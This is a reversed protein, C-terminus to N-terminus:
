DLVLGRHSEVQSLHGIQPLARNKRANLWSEVLNHVNGDIGLQKVKFMLKNHPVKDFGKQFDLYVIDLSRTIDHAHSLDDYFTLLNSLCSRKNRFGHQSDRILSHNEFHRVIHNRIISEFMKGVVSTLRIPRYNGPTNRNGKKKLSPRCECGELRCPCFRPIM